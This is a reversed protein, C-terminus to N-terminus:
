KIQKKKAKQERWRPIEGKSEYLMDYQEQEEKTAENYFREMLEDEIAWIERDRQTIAGSIHGDIRRLGARTLENNAWARANTDNKGEKRGQSYASMFIKVQRLEARKQEDDLRELIEEHIKDGARDLAETLIDHISKHGFDKAEAETRARRTKKLERQREKEEGIWDAYEQGVLKLIAKIDRLAVEEGKSMQKSYKELREM